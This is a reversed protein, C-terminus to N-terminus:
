AHGAPYVYVGPMDAPSVLPPTRHDAGVARLTLSPLTCFGPQSPILTFTARYEAAPLLDLQQARLGAVVFAEDGGVRGEADARDASGSSGLGLMLRLLSSGANRVRVALPTAEGVTATSAADCFVRVSPVHARVRALQLTSTGSDGEGVCANPSTWAVKLSGAHGAPFPRDARLRLAVGVSEGALLRVSGEGVLASLEEPPTVLSIGGGAPPEYTLGTVMLPHQSVSEITATVMFPEGVLTLAASPRTGGGVEVGFDSGELGACQCVICEAAADSEMSLPEACEAQLSVSGGRLREPAQQVVERWRTEDVLTEAAPPSAPPTSGSERLALSPIALSPAAGLLNIDFAAAGPADLRVFFLLQKRSFAGLPGLELAERPRVRRIPLPKSAGCPRSYGLTGDDDRGGEDDSAGGMAADIAADIEALADGSTRAAAGYDTDAMSPDEEPPVITTCVDEPEATVGGPTDPATPLWLVEGPQTTAGEAPVVNAFLAGGALGESGTEITLVAAHFAGPLVPRRSPEDGDVSHQQSFGSSSRQRAVPSLPTPAGGLGVSFVSSWSRQRTLPQEQLVAAASELSSVALDAQAFAPADHLLQLKLAISSPPLSVLLENFPGEGFALSTTTSIASALKLTSLGAARSRDPSGGAGGQTARHAAPSLHLPRAAQARIMGGVDPPEPTMPMPPVTFAVVTGSDGASAGVAERGLDLYVVVKVCRLSQSTGNDEPAEDAPMDYVSKRKKKQLQAEVTSAAAAAAANGAASSEMSGPWELSTELPPAILRFSFEVDNPTDPLLSLDVPPGEPLGDPGGDGVNGGDPRRIVGSDERPTGGVTSDPGDLKLPVAADEALAGVEDSVGVDEAGATEGGAGGVSTVEVGGPSAPADVAGVDPQSRRRPTAMATHVSRADVARLSSRRRVRRPTMDRFTRNYREDSFHVDLRAFHIPLPFCSTLQLIVNVHEGFHATRQSFGVRAQLLPASASALSFSLDVGPQVELPREVSSVAAGAASESGDGSFQQGLRAPATLAFLFKRQVVAREDQTNQMSPSMLQLSNEIFARIDGRRHSCLLLRELTRTLPAWWQERRYVEAVPMLLRQAMGVDGALFAEEAVLTQRWLRMRSPRTPLLFGLACPTGWLVPPESSEGGSVRIEGPDRVASRQAADLLEVVAKSHNFRREKEAFHRLIAAREADGGVAGGAGGGSGDGGLLVVRPMAGVFLPDLIMSGPSPDGSGATGSDSAPDPDSSIDAPYTCCNSRVAAARRKLTKLAATHYYHTATQYPETAANVRGVYRSLLQAIVVNERVVWAWHRYELEPDGIANAFTAMHRRFQQVGPVPELRAIHIHCIRINIASAVAKLEPVKSAGVTPLLSSLYGYADGYYALAKDPLSCFEYYQGVKFHHRVQLHTQSSSLKHKFKKIRRASARYHAIARDRLTADLKHLAQSAGTVDATHLVSVSRSDLGGLRRRLSSIREGSAEIASRDEDSRNYDREQILLVHVDIGRGRLAERLRLVVESMATEADSWDAAPSNVEFEFVAVVLGPLIAHHKNLWETKIIGEPNHGDFERGSPREWRKNSREPWERSTPVAEYRFGDEGAGREANLHTALLDAVAGDSCCRSTDVVSVRLSGPAHPPRRLLDRAVRRAPSSSRAVCRVLAVLPVPKRVLEPPFQEM